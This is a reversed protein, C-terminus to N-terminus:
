GEPNAIAGALSSGPSYIRPKNAQPGRLGGERVLVFAPVRELGRVHGKHRLRWARDEAAM